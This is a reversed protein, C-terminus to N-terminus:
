TNGNSIELNKIAIHEVISTGTYRFTSVSGRYARAYNVEFKEELERRVRPYRLKRLAKAEIQRAMDGTKGISQGAAELSMSQKYRAVIINNEEPTTNNKVIQWLEKHIRTDIIRNITDNEVNTNQDPVGDGLLISEDDNGPIPEDLSKIKDFQHLAKKLSMLVNSSIELYRCLEYDTPKCGLQIEYATVAKKYSLAKAQLGTPIRVIRGNNELYRVISQKIWFGAYTLFKVGATDEYRKAAEYLGFYGEQKLDEIDAYGKYKKAIQKIYGKNQQYLLGLNDSPKIGSQIQKVLEENSM